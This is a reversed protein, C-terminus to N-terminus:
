PNDRQFPIYRVESKLEKGTSAKVANRVEQMLLLMDQCSAGGANILFNAHKHSVEASGVRTGKLGCKDILAGASAEPPNMFICGASKESYPQTKIRYNVIEIQHERAKEHPILNFTASVIAGPMDQLSSHRYSFSMEAKTITKENGDADIFQVEDLTECTEKGNAGANMFVAGGVTAPIGSAFELGGWGQRATQAGLLAFSYGAGVIFKGPSPKKIFDIKNLLVAGDFGRDDFLCNSGKGITLFDLKNSKCFLIAKKMEDITHIEFFYRAPGGIGLTCYQKLSINERMSPADSM